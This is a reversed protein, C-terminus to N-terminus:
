AWLGSIATVLQHHIQHAVQVIEQKRQNAATVETQLRLHHDAVAETRLELHHGATVETQHDMVVEMQHGVTTEVTDVTTEM